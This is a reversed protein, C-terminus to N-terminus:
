DHPQKRLFEDPYPIPARPVSYFKVGFGAAVPLAALIPGFMIVMFLWMGIFHGALMASAIWIAGVAMGTTVGWFATWDFKV